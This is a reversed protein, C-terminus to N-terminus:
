ERCINHIRAEEIHEKEGGLADKRGRGAAGEGHEGRSTVAPLAKDVGRCFGSM